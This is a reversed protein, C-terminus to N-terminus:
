TESNENLLFVKSYEGKKKERSQRPSGSIREHRPCKQLQARPRAWSTCDTVIKIIPFLFTCDTVVYIRGGSILLAM